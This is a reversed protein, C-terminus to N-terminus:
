QPWPGSPRLEFWNVKKHERAAFIALVFATSYNLLYSMTSHKGLKHPARPKIGLVTPTPLPPLKPIFVNKMVSTSHSAHDAM